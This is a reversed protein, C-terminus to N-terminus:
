PAKTQYLYLDIRDVGKTGDAPIGEALVDMRNAPVGQEILSSRLSLARSLAIRKDSSIGDGHPTAYSKIHVRWDRKDETDLEKVVGAAISNTVGEVLRIQGPEYHIVKKLAQQTETEFRVASSSDKPRPVVPDIPEVAKGSSINAPVTTVAQTATKKEEAAMKQQREFITLQAGKDEDGNYLVQTDVKEAPLAPMTKPGKIASEYKPKESAPMSPAPAQSVVPAAAPKKPPIPIQRIKPADPDVSVRPAVVVPKEQMKEVVPPPSVKKEVLNGSPKEPRVMPPTMDDFM